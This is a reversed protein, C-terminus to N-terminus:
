KRFLAKITNKGIVGDQSLDNAAQFTKIAKHTEGNLSMKGDAGYRSLSIGINMLRRQIIKVLPGNSPAKILVKEMAQVSCDGLYGDVEM